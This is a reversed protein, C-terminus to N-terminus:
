KAREEEKEVESVPPLGYKIEVSGAVGSINPSGDGLSTQSKSNAYKPQLRHLRAVTGSSSIRETTRVPSDYDIRVDRLVHNLNPSESGASFQVVPAGALADGQSKLRFAVPATTPRTTKEPGSQLALFFTLIAIINAAVGLSKVIASRFRSQNSTKRTRMFHGGTPICRGSKSWYSGAM